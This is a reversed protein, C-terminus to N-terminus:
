LYKAGGQAKKKKKTVYSFRVGFPKESRHQVPPFALGTANFKPEIPAIEVHDREVVDGLVRSIPIYEPVVFSWKLLPRFRQMLSQIFIGEADQKSKSATQKAEAARRQAFLSRKKESAPPPATTV